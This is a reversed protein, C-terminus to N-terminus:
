VYQYDLTRLSAWTPTKESRPDIEYESLFRDRKWSDDLLSRADMEGLREDLGAAAMITPAM